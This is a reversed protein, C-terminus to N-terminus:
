SKPTSTIHQVLRPRVKACRAIQKLASFQSYQDPWLTKHTKPASTIISPFHVIIFCFYLKM